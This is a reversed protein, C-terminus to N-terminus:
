LSQVRSLAEPHHKQWYRVAAGVAMFSPDACEYDRIEDETAGAERLEDAVYETFAVKVGVSVAFKKPEAPLEDSVM